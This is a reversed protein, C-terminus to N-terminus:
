KLRIPENTQFRILINLIALVLAQLDIDILLEKDLVFQAVMISVGLVNLWFTKSKLFLKVQKEAM